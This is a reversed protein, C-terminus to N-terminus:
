RCFSAPHHHPQRGSLGSEAFGCLVLRRAVKDFSSLGSFLALGFAAVNCVCDLIGGDSFSVADLVGVSLGSQMLAAALNVATTSKGVGGKGSGVVIVNRIGPHLPLDRQVAHSALRPM